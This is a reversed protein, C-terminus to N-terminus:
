TIDGFEESLVFYYDIRLNVISMRASGLLYNGRALLNFAGVPNTSTWYGPVAVFLSYGAPATPIFSAVDLYGGANLTVDGLIVRQRKFMPRATGLVKRLNSPSIKRLEYGNWVGIWSATSLEAKSYGLSSATNNGSDLISGHSHSGAAFSEFTGKPTLGKSTTVGDFSIGSRILKGSASSDALILKDGSGVATDATIAGASSINGHAHVSAAKGNLADALDTQSALSGSIGGWVSPGAPGQPGTAGTDGKPGQPGTAGTDGKPGAPGTEGTEGKPGQPGTEGTDGKPGQPGTEGQPGPEGAEGTDGKPGAPGMPGMPGPAGTEGRAGPEGKPGVAGPTGPDGKPGAPGVPGPEGPEGQPGVPGPPGSEITVDVREVEPAELLIPEEDVRVEAGDNPVEVGVVDASVEVVAGSVETVEVIVEEASVLVEVDRDLVEADMLGWNGIGFEANGIGCEWNRM